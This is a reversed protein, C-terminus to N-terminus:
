HWVPVRPWFKSFFHQVGFDVLQCGYCSFLFFNCTLSEANSQPLKEPLSERGIPNERQFNFSIDGNQLEGWFKSNIAISKYKRVHKFPYILRTSNNCELCSLRFMDVSKRRMFIAEVQFVKTVSSNYNM